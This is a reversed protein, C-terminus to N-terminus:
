SATRNDAILYVPRGYGREQVRLLAALNHLTEKSYIV